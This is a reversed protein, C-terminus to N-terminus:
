KPFRRNAPVIMLGEGPDMPDRQTITYHDYLDFTIGSSSVSHSPLIGQPVDREGAMVERYIDVLDDLNGKNNAIACCTILFGDTLASEAHLLFRDGNQDKGSLDTYSVPVRADDEFRIRYAQDLTYGSSATNAVVGALKDVETGLMDSVEESTLGDIGALADPLVKIVLRLNDPNPNPAIRLVEGDNLQSRGRVSYGDALYFTIGGVSVQEQASLLTSGSLLLLAILIKKM